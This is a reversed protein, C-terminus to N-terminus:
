RGQPFMLFLVGVAGVAAGAFRGMEMKGAPYKLAQTISLDEPVPDLKELQSSCYFFGAIGAVLLLLGFTRM